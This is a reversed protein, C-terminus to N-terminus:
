DVSGVLTGLGDISIATTAGPRVTASTGPAGTMLVDGPGLTMHATVYCFAEIADWALGATSSSAARVGDVVVEISLDHPDLDTEIWPGIPTFGDGNKAQTFLPDLLVQDVATVDNGITWGLVVDALQDPMVDRCVTRVVLTLEGEIRVEGRRPEVHVVDGPGVVTRASKMFAQPPRARDAPGSNHSMGLVVRPEVPSLLVTTSQPRREGTRVLPRAFVDEVVAWDAGDAVAHVAGEPTSIRALRM